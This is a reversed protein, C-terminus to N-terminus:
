KRVGEVNIPAHQPRRFRQTVENEGDGKERLQDGTRDHASTVKEGLKKM